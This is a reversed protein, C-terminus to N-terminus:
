ASDWIADKENEWLEKASRESLRLLHEFEDKMKKSVEESKAILLKDDSVQLVLTQGKRINLRRRIDVPISVQGKESVTVTRLESAATM